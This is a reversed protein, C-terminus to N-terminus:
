KVRLAGVDAAGDRLDVRLVVAGADRRPMVGGFM